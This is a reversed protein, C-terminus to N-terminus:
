KGLLRRCKTWDEYRDGLMHIDSGLYKVYGNEIWELYRKRKLPKTLCEANLQLPVSECILKEINEAPYREAHALVIQIDALDCLLYLTDWISEPWAYFPMELLLENTGERCLRNLGDLREMGDCILVEAGLQILPANEPLEHLLLGATKERRRLFSEVSEKHPYFHPTACITKVGASAAMEVQKLSTALGDSGHDCGPLIHAHYDLSLDLKMNGRKMRSLIPISIDTNAGYKYKYAYKVSKMNLDNLVTGCLNGGARRVADIAENLEDETTDGSKVVLVVGDVYTSVIQADAVTNIPPTDIIIYYLGKCKRGRLAEYARIFATRLPEAPHNWHLRDLAASREGQGTRAEINKCSFRM